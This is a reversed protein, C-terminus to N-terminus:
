PRIRKQSDQPPAITDGEQLRKLNRLPYLRGSPQLYPSTPEEDKEEPPVMMDNMQQNLDSIGEVFRVLEQKFCLLKENPETMAVLKNDLAKLLERGLLYYRPFRQVPAILVASLTGLQPHHERIKTEQISRFPVDMTPPVLLGLTLKLYREYYPEVKKLTQLWHTPHPDYLTDVVARQEARLEKLCRYIVLLDFQEQDNAAILTDIDGDHLYNLFHNQYAIESTLLEKYPYVEAAKFGLATLMQHYAKENFTLM